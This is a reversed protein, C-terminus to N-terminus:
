VITLRPIVTNPEITIHDSIKAEGGIYANPYINVFDEIIVDHDIVVCANVIIHRGIKSGTQIVSNALIVTGEAIQVNKSVVASPHILIGSKHKIEKTIKERIKTNGIAIILTANPFIDSKYPNDNDFVHVVEGNLLEILDKLVRSHGGNGFLIYEKKEM